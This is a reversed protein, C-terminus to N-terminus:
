KQKSIPDVTTKPVKKFANVALVFLTRISLLLAAILYRPDWMGFTYHLQYFRHAGTHFEIIRTPNKKKFSSNQDHHVVIIKPICYLIGGSKQIRKCWDADAWYGVFRSFGEDLNGVSDVIAKRFMLCAASIFEVQFPEQNHLDSKLLYRRAFPNNPFLKTLISQRGFLGNIAGPFKRASEQITGDSNLTRPAVLSVEPHDDLFASMVRVADEKLETDADLLLIYDGSAAKFGQNVGHIFGLNESNQILSVDPYTKKVKDATDDISANDIVIIEHLPYNSSLVSRICANLLNWSNLTVILVSLNPLAM